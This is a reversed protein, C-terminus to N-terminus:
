GACEGEERVGSGAWYGVDEVRGEFKWSVREREVGPRLLEANPQSYWEPQDFSARIDFPARKDDGANRRVVPVLRATPGYPQVTDRWKM